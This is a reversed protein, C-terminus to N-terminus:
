RESQRAFSPSVVARYVTEPTTQFLSLQESLHEYTLRYSHFTQILQPRDGESVPFMQGGILADVFASAHEDWTKSEV